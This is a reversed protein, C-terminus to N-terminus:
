DQLLVAFCGRDNEIFIIKTCLNSFFLYSLIAVMMWYVAFELSHIDCLIVVITMSFEIKTRGHM